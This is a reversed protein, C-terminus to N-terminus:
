HTRCNGLMSAVIGETGKGCVVVTSGIITTGNYHQVSPAATPGARERLQDFLNVIKAKKDEDM